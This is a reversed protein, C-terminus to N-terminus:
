PESDSTRESVVERIYPRAVATFLPFLLYGGGVIVLGEQWWRLSSEAEGTLLMHISEFAYLFVVLAVPYIALHSPRRKRLRLMAKRWVPLLEKRPVGSMEPISRLRWYLAM